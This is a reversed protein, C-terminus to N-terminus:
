DNQFNDFFIPADIRVAIPLESKRPSAAGLQYYGNDGWCYVNGDISLGCAHGTGTVLQTIGGLPFGDTNTISIGTLSDSGAAARGLEDELDSGWCRVTKDSLLACTFAYGASISTADKIQGKEDYSAVAISRSSESGDGLQGRKNWGWCAISNSPSNLILGCTHYGGAAIQGGGFILNVLMGSDDPIIVSQPSIAHGPFQGNGLEGDGGYGWCAAHNDDFLACSNANGAVVSKVQLLPPNPPSGMPDQILVQVASLSADGTLVNFNGIQGHSNSGWCWVSSDALAACAHESGAAISTAPLGTTVYAPVDHDTRTGDGLQGQDNVGWCYVTGNRVIACGFNFGTSVSVVDQGGVDITRAGVEGNGWCTLREDAMLACTQLATPGSFVSAVGSHLAAYSSHVPLLVLSILWSASIAASTRM